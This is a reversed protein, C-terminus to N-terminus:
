FMEAVLILILNRLNKKSLKQSSVEQEASEGTNEYRSIMDDLEAHLKNERVKIVLLILSVILVVSCVIFPIELMFLSVVSGDLFKTVALVIALVSGIAGGVYGVIKIIGNAKSRLPKPTLDPMLAVAPSRYSMMFIIILVMSSIMGIVMGVIVAGGYAM